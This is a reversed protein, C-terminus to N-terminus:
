NYINSTPTKNLEDRKCIDYLRALVSMMKSWNICKNTSHENQDNQKIYNTGLKLINTTPGNIKWFLYLLFIRKISDLANLIFGFFECAEFHAELNFLVHFVHIVHFMTM